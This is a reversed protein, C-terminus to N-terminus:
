FSLVCKFVLRTYHCSLSIFQICASFLSRTEGNGLECWLFHTNKSSLYIYCFHIFIKKHIVWGLFFVRWTTKLSVFNAKLFNVDNDNALWGTRTFIKEKFKFSNYWIKKGKLAARANKGSLFVYYDYFTPFIISFFNTKEEKKAFSEELCSLLSIYYVYYVCTHECYLLELMLMFLM